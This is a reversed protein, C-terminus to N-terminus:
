VNQSTFVATSSSSYDNLHNDYRIKFTMPHALFSRRKKKKRKKGAARRAAHGSTALGGRLKGYQIDGYDLTLLQM